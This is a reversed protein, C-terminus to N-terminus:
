EFGNAFIVPCSNLANPSDAASAANPDFAGEYWKGTDNCRYFHGPNDAVTVILNCNSGATCTQGPGYPYTNDSPDVIAIADLVDDWPELDVIGDHDTDIDTGLSAGELNSVLMHTVTGDEFDIAQTMHETALTFNPGAILFRGGASLFRGDLNVIEEITGSNVGNVGSDGVVIYRLGTLSKGAPGTLEVYEEKDPIGPGFAPDGIRIESIRVQAGAAASLALLAAAALASRLHHTKDHLGFM